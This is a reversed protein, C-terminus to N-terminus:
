KISDLKKLARAAEKRVEESPDEKQSRLLPYIAKRDMLEGLAKAACARVTFFEDELIAILYDVAERNGLRGTLEVLICKLRTNSRKLFDFYYDLDTLGLKELANVVEFQLNDNHILPLIVNVAEVAKLDGLAHIAHKRIIDEGDDLRDLLHSIARRDGIGGLATIAASRVKWDVDDLAVILDPVSRHDGVRGLSRVAVEKIDIDTDKLLDVLFQVTKKDKFNGLAHVIALRVPKPAGEFNERLKEAWVPDGTRGLAEIMALRVEPDPDSLLDMIGEPLEGAMTTNLAKALAKRVTPSNDKLGREVLTKPWEAHERAALANFVEARIEDSEDDMFNKLYEMTDPSEIGTLVKIAMLRGVDPSDNVKRMLKGALAASSADGLIKVAMERVEHAPDSLLEILADEVEPLHASSAMSTVAQYRVEFNENSLFPIVAKKGAEDDIWDLCRIITTLRQPDAQGLAEVLPGVSDAGISVLSGVVYEELEYDGILGILHEVVRKDRLWGLAIVANKRIEIDEDGLSGTLHEVLEDNDLAQKISPLCNGDLVVHRELRGQINVLAAITDNRCTVDNQALIETLVPIVSVDGIKGLAEIVAQRLMEDDVLKVLHQIAAPDGINGLAIVAPYQIWFDADLCDILPELARQDGIFGLAEAAAHRVNEDDDALAKILGEVSDPDKIEGLIVGTFTRVEPDEDELLNMLYPTAENRYRPYAEMAATRLNANEGDRLFNELRPFIVDPPFYCIARLSEERIRFSPDGVAQLLLHLADLSQARALESVAAYRVEEKNSNIREAVREFSELAM